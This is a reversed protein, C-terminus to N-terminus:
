PSRPAHAASRLLLVVQAAILLPLLFTLYLCLPLRTLALLSWPSSLHLRVLTFVILLLTVFSVISWIRIARLRTPSELPALAVPLAMVAVILDGAGAVAAFARPLEGRLHLFLFYIGVLRSVHWLVLIRLDVSEIWARLPPIRFLLVLLLGALAPAVLPVAFPPLRQLVLWHGAAVAGAFWLWFIVRLILAVPM